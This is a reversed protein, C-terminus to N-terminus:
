AEAERGPAAAPGDAAWDALSAQKAVPAAAKRQKAAAVRAADEQLAEASRGELWATQLQSSRRTRMSEILEAHQSAQTHLQRYDCPPYEGVAQPVFVREGLDSFLESSATAATDVLHAFVFDRRKILVGNIASWEAFIIPDGLATRLSLADGQLVNQTLVYSISSATENPMAAGFREAFADAVVGSLRVRCADVNDPLLDIGYISSVCVVADRQWKDANSAHKASVTRLKRRLVEALFNGNGCAPELFRSDLRDCEQSVLDLMDRVLEPPTFVEGHDIIRQRTNNRHEKM